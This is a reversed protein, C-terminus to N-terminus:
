MTILVELGQEIVEEDENSVCEISAFAYFFIQELTYPLDPFALSALQGVSYKQTLLYHAQRLGELDSADEIFTHRGSPCDADGFAQCTSSFHDILCLSESIFYPHDRVFPSSVFINFMEHALIRGTSGFFAPESANQALPFFTTALLIINNYFNFANFQFSNQLRVLLSLIEYDTTEELLM